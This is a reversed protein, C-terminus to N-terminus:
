MTYYHVNYLLRCQITYMTYHVNYLLTCQIITYMTVVASRKDDHILENESIDVLLDLNHILEPLDFAIDSLDVLIDTAQM